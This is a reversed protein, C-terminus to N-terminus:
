KGAVEEAPLKLSLSEKTLSLRPTSSAATLYINPQVDLREDVLSDSESVSGASFTAHFYGNPQVSLSEDVLM